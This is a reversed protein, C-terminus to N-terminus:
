SIIKSVEGHGLEGSVPGGETDIAWRKRNHLSRGM